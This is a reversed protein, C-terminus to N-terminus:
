ETQEVALSLGSETHHANVCLLTFTKFRMAAIYRSLQQCTGTITSVIRSFVCLKILLCNFVFSHLDDYFVQGLDKGNDDKNNNQSCRGCEATVFDCDMRGFRNVYRGILGRNLCGDVLCGFAINRKCNLFFISKGMGIRMPEFESSSLEFYVIGM